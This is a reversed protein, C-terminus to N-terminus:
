PANPQVRQFRLLKRGQAALMNSQDGIVGPEVRLPSASDIHQKM